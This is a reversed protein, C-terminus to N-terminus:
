TGWLRRAEELDGPFDIDSWLRDTALVQIQQGQDILRQILQPFSTGLDTRAVQELEKVLAPAAERSFRAVGIFEGYPSSVNKGIASVVDQQLAIKEAERDIGKRDVALLLSGEAALVEGILGSEFLIDDYILIFGGELERRALWLNMAVNCVEYFPNYVCTAKGRCLEEVQDACFGTIVLVDEVGAQKLAEFQHGLIVRGGVDLLSVPTHKTL